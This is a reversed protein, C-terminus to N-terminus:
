GRIHQTCSNWEFMDAPMASYSVCLYAIPHRGNAPRWGIGTSRERSFVPFASVTMNVDAGSVACIICGDHGRSRQCATDPKLVLSGDRERSSKREYSSQTEAHFAHSRRFGCEARRTRPAQSSRARDMGHCARCSSRNASRHATARQSYSALAHHLRPLMHGDCTPRHVGSAREVTNAQRREEPIGRWRPRAANRPCSPRDDGQRKRSCIRPRHRQAPVERPVAFEGATAVVM